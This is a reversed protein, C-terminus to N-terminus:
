AAKALGVTELLLRLDAKSYPKSLVAAAGMREFHVDLDDYGSAVAFPIRRRTLDDAVAESTEDVLNYDLIAFDVPQDKLVQMASEVSGAVAVDGFGLERLCDEAEMAIIMSDEVVLVRRAPVGNMEHSSM